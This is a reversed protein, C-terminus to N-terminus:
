NITLIGTNIIETTKDIIKELDRKTFTIEEDLSKNSFDTKISFLLIKNKIFDSLIM